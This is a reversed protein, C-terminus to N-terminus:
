YRLNLASLEALRRRKKTRMEYDKIVEKEMDDAAKERIAQREAVFNKYMKELGRKSINNEQFDMMEKYKKEKLELIDYQMTKMIYNIEIIFAFDKNRLKSLLPIQRNLASKDYKVADKGYRKYEDLEFDIEDFETFHDVSDKLEKILDGIQDRTYMTVPVQENAVTFERIGPNRSM